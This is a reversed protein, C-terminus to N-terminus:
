KMAHFCLLKVSHSHLRKRDAGIELLKRGTAALGWIKGQICCCKWKRGTERSGGLECSRKAEVNREIVWEQQQQKTLCACMCSRLNVKVHLNTSPLYTPLKQWNISLAPYNLAPLDSQPLVESEPKRQGGCDRSSGNQKDCESQNAFALGQVLLQWPWHAVKM